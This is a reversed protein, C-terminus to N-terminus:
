LVRSVLALDLNVGVLLLQLVQNLMNGVFVTCNLSCLSDVFVNSVNFGSEFLTFRLYLLYKSLFLVQEVLKNRPSGLRWLLPWTPSAFIVYNDLVKHFLLVLKLNLKLRLILDDALKLRFDLLELCGLTRVNNRLLVHYVGCASDILWANTSSEREIWVDVHWVALRTLSILAGEHLLFHLARRYVRTASAVVNSRSVLHKVEICGLSEIGRMHLGFSRCGVLIFVVEFYWRRWVSSGIRVLVIGLGM